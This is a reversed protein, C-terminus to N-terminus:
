ADFKQNTKCKIRKRDWKNWAEKGDLFRKIHEETQPDIERPETMAPAKPDTALPRNM